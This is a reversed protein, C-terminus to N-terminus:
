CMPAREHAGSCFQEICERLFQLIMLLVVCSWLSAGGVVPVYGWAWSRAAKWTRFNDTFRM